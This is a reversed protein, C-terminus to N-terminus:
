LVWGNSLICKEVAQCAQAVTFQGGLVAILGAPTTVDWTSMGAFKPASPPGSDIRAFNQQGPMSYM